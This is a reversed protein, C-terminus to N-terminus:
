GVAIRTNNVDFSMEPATAFPLNLIRYIHALARDTATGPKYFLTNAIRTREASLRNPQDLSEIITPVLQHADRVVSAAERLQRVKEVNIRAQDILEPRDVVVLPRDLLMYEFAISSHDSVMADAAVMFPSGDSQRAVRIRPHNEYRALRTTWDIGGSGRTRCDYSRDHLKIIVQLGEAALGEIIAEGFENLSSYPSWTPAYLITPTNPDLSLSRTIKERNLSGDVLCDLKPYGILPAAFRDDVALGADIYRQRRDANIFMLCHFAAITPALDVPADLGYKGAVGHFLHIRRTRRHLWTMDWFDANLYADVKLWKAAGRTVVRDSIGYQRFIKDPNWVEDYATFWVEVRNDNKLREYIPRFITFSMPSAAEFLLRKRSHTRSYVSDEIDHLRSVVRRRLRRYATDHLLSPTTLTDTSFRDIDTKTSARRRALLRRARSRWRESAFTSLYLRLAWPDFPELSLAMAFHRRAAARQGAQLLDYGWSRHLVHLRRQGCAEPARRHLACAQGCLAQNKEKVLLQAEYTRDIQTSMLGGRRHYALPEDIYGIPYRVAVRLWLDWDEVHVERREDFGHVESFIRRPMMVTLTRIFFDTHFLECFAHRPPGSLAGDPTGGVVATHLLGTEPFRNFYEVQRALKEPNWEDDADLFAVLQGTAHAVGTNRAKAPGGNPQRVYRIREAFEALAEQLADRDESGDDVVVVEFDTFTQAFVSRLAGAIFRAANFAPIVVSVHPM